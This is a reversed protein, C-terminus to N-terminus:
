AFRREYEVAAHTVGDWTTEQRVLGTETWGVKDYFRRARHAGVHTWLFAREFSEALSTVARDM